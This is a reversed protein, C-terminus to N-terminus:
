SIGRPFNWASIQLHGNLTGYIRGCLLCQIGEPNSFYEDIEQKAAFRDKWPFGQPSSKERLKRPM